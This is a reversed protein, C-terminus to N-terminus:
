KQRRKWLFLALVALGIGGAVAGWLMWNPNSDILVFAIDTKTVSGGETSTIKGLAYIYSPGHAVDPRTHLHLTASTGSIPVASFNFAGSDNTAVTTIIRLTISDVLDVATNPIPAAGRLLTGIVTLYFTM